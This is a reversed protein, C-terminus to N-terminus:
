TQLEPRSESQRQIKDQREAVFRRYGEPARMLRYRVLQDSNEFCRSGDGMLTLAPNRALIEHYVRYERGGAFHEGRAAEAEARHHFDSFFKFHLLAGTMDALKVPTLCHQNLLFRTVGKTWKLFPVKSVTPPHTEQHNVQRWFLRQRPGGYIQLPPFEDPCPKIWYSTSDFFACTNLFLQDPRHHAERIPGASYMDLLISFVAQAGTQELYDTLGDLRLREYDPYIFLEDADIVLCWHGDCYNDLVAHWWAVGYQSESFPQRTHFWHVDPQADLYDATGDSSDNDVILFRGVGLERHHDLLGPLRLAENRTVIVARIEGPIKPVPRRDRKQLIWKTTM